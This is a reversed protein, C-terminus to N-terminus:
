ERAGGPPAAAPSRPWLRLARASCGGREGGDGREGITFVYNQTQQNFPSDGGAGADFLLYLYKLTESLFFSEMSDEMTTNVVNDIM